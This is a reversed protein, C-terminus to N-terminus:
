CAAGAPAAAHAEAGRPLALPVPLHAGCAPHAARAGPSPTHHSIYTTYPSTLPHLPIYPFPITLPHVTTEHEAEIETVIQKAEAHTEQVARLKQAAYVYNGCYEAYLKFFPIRAAFAGAVRALLM